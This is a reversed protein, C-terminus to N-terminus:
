ARQGRDRDRRRAPDAPRGPSPGTPASASTSRPRSGNISVALFRYGSLLDGVRGGIDIRPDAPSFQTQITAMAPSTSSCSPRIQTRRSTPRSRRAADESADLSTVFVRNLRNSLLSTLTFQGNVVPASVVTPQSGAPTAGLAEVSVGGPASGKLVVQNASTLSVYGALNVARRGDAAHGHASRALRAM